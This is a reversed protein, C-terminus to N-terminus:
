GAGVTTLWAGSFSRVPGSGSIGRVSRELGLAGGSPDPLTYLLPDRRVGRVTAAGLGGAV